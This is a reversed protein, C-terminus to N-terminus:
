RTRSPFPHPLRALTVLVMELYGLILVNSEPHLAVCLLALIRRLESGFIGVSADYHSPTTWSSPEGVGTARSGPVM